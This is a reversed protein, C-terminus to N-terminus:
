RLLYLRAPRSATDALWLQGQGDFRPYPRVLGPPLSVARWAQTTPGGGRVLLTPPTAVGPETRPGGTAVALRDFAALHFESEDANAVRGLEVLGGDLLLQYALGGVLLASTGDVLAASDTNGFTSSLNTVRISAWAGPDGAQVHLTDGGILRLATSSAVLHYQGTESPLAVPRWGGDAVSGLALLPRNCATHDCIWTWALLYPAGGLTTEEPCQDGPMRGADALELWGADVWAGEALREVLYGPGRLGSGDSPGFGLAWLGEDPGVWALGASNSSLPARVLTAGGSWWTGGDGARDGGRLAVSTAGTVLPSCPLLTDLDAPTRDVWAKVQLGTSSLLGALSSPDLPNGARDTIPELLSGHVREGVPWWSSGPVLVARTAYGADGTDVQAAVRGGLTAVEIGPVQVPEDFVLEVPTWPDVAAGGAATVAVLRPPRRDLHVVLSPGQVLGGDAEAVLQFRDDGDPEGATRYTYQYPPVLDAFRVGDRMLIVQGAPGNVLFQMDVDGRAYVESAAPQSRGLVM